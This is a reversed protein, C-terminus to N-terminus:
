HPLDSWNITVFNKSQGIITIQQGSDSSTADFVYRAGDRTINQVVQGSGNYTVLAFSVRNDIFSYIWTKNAGYYIVPCTNSGQYGDDPVKTCAVKLGAPIPPPATIPDYKIQPTTPVAQAQAAGTAGLACAVGAAILLSKLAVTKFMAEERVKHGLKIGINESNHL